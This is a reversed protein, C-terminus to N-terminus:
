DLLSGTRPADSAALCLGARDGDAWSDESPAWVVFRLGDGAGAERAAPGLLDPGCTRAVRAAAAQEGPWVADPAADTRGVVQAEHEAACPVAQVQRVVGDDPLEAVCSGLVLQVAHARTPETIAAPLPEWARERASQTLLAVVAAAVGLVAVAVVAVAARRRSRSAPAPGDPPAPPPAAYAGPPGYSGPVSAPVSAPVTAPVSVADLDAPPLSRHPTPSAFTPEPPESSM